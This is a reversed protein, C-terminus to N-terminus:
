SITPPHAFDVARAIRLEPAADGDFDQRVGHGRVRLADRAELALCLHERREIMGVDRREVPHFLGAAPM